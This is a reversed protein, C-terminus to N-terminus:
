RSDERTTCLNKNLRETDNLLYNVVSSVKYPRKIADRVCLLNPSLGHVPAKGLQGKLSLWSWLDGNLANPMRVSLDGVYSERERVVPELWKEAVRRTM